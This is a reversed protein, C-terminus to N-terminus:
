IFQEWVGDMTWKVEEKRANKGFHNNWEKIAQVAKLKLPSSCGCGDCKVQIYTKGYKTQVRNLLTHQSDCKCEVFKVEIVKPVEM